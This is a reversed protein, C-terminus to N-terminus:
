VQEERGFYAAAGFNGQGLYLMDDGSPVWHGFTREQDILTRSFSKYPFLVFVRMGLHQQVVVVYRHNYILTISLISFAERECDSAIYETFLALLESDFFEPEM